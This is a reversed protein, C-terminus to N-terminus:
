SPAGNSVTGPILTKLVNRLQQLDFPKRLVIFRGSTALQETSADPMSDTFIFNLQPKQNSVTEYVQLGNGRPMHLDCFTMLYDGTLAMKIGEEGNVALDVDHGESELFERLLTRMVNSDDIVLIRAM